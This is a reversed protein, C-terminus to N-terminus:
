GSGTTAVAKRAERAYGGFARGDDGSPGVVKALYGEWAAADFASLAVFDRAVGEGIDATRVPVVQVIPRDAYIVVPEDTKTVRFNIFLLGRYIAPDVVGTMVEIPYPRPFNAPPGIWLSWGAAATAIVGLSLQVLGPEPLATIFAPPAHRCSEPAVALWSDPFGPFPVADTVFAFDEDEGVSVAIRTGDWVLRVEAPPFLYQGAGSALRVAECYRFARTPLTGLASPDARRPMEGSGFLSFYSVLPTM